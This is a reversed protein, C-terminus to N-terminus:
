KLGRKEHLKIKQLKGVKSLENKYPAWIEEVAEALNDIDAKTHIATLSKRFRQKSVPVAPYEISNVFLGKEHFKIAAKSIDM